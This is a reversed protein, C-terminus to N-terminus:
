ITARPALLGREAFSIVEKDGIVMHDLLRVEVINLASRLNNTLIKDAASPEAVGSPHNHAIVAAAANHHLCRQILVRPHVDTQSISGYFLKEFAITQHKNDLFLCAFVEETHHRLNAILFHKLQTSHTIANGKNLRARLHRRSLEIAAQCQCYKTIGLGRIKRFAEFDASLVGRLGDFEKILERALDVATKGRIGNGFLVALLEADSLQNAGKSLLKERPREQLPWDPIKM